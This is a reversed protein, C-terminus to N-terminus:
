LLINSFIWHMFRPTKNLRKLFLDMLQLCVSITMIILNWSQIIQKKGLLQFHEQCKSFIAKSVANAAKIRLYSSLFGFIYYIIKLIWKKFVAGNCVFSLPLFLFSFQFKWKFDWFPPKNKLATAWWDRSLIVSFQRGLDIWINWLQGTILWSM